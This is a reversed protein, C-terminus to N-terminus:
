PRHAEQELHDLQEALTVLQDDTEPPPGFLLSHVARADRGTRAALLQTLQDPNDRHGFRRGLRQGTGRRLAAAARDRAGLSYYLRGHGEVTESARVRVPLRETLIPGLRRGRWIGLILVAVFAQATAPGWWPPLLTPARGTDGPTSVQDADRTAMLWTIKPQGGLAATVLSANGAVALQDNAWGGGVVVARPAEPTGGTRLYGFGDGSPYCVTDASGGAYAHDLAGMAGARVADADTCSPQAGADGPSVARVGPALAALAQGSPALLVLRAYSSGALRQADAVSLLEANAVVLTTDQAADDVASDVSTTVEIQVGEDRLLQAVAAAGSRGASRPDDAQRAEARGLLLLGTFVILGVVLLLAAIWRLGKRRWLGRLTLRRRPPAVLDAALDHDVQDDTLDPDVQDDTFTPSSM